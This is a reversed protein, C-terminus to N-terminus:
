CPLTLSVTFVSSCGSYSWTTCHYLSVMVVRAESGLPSCHDDRDEHVHDDEDLDEHHFEEDDCVHRCDSHGVM